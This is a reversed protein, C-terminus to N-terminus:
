KKLKEERRKEWDDLKSKQIKLREQLYSEREQMKQRIEEVYEKVKQWREKEKEMIRSLRDHVTAKKGEEILAEMDPKLIIEEETETKINLEGEFLGLHTSESSTIISFDTGRIAMVATPTQINISSNTSNLKGMLGLIKGFKIKFKYNQDKNKIKLTIIDIETNESLRITSGDQMVIDCFANKGTKIKNGEKISIYKKVKEWANKEPCFIEVNGSFKYICGVFDEEKQQTKLMNSFLFIVAVPIFFKKISM